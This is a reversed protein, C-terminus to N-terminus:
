LKTTNSYLHQDIEHGARAHFGGVMIPTTYCYLLPRLSVMFISFIM